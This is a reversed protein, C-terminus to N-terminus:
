SRYGSSNEHHEGESSTQWWLCPDALYPESKALLGDKDLVDPEPRELDWTAIRM